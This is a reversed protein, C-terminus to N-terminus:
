DSCIYKSVMYGSIPKLTKGTTPHLGFSTYLEIENNNKKWYWVIAEGKANFLKTNCDPANIKKFKLIREKKYIKLQDLNYKELDFKVEVYHDKEWVMWRQKDISIKTLFFIVVLLSFVIVIKNKKVWFSISKKKSEREGTQPVPNENLSAIFDEYDKFGLYKCLGYVVRLQSINIDIEDDIIKKAESHYVRYTKENLKLTTLEDIYDSIDESLSVTSPKNDGLKKRTEKAKKYALLILKKHM